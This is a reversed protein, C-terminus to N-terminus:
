ANEGQDGGSFQRQTRSLPVFLFSASMIHMVEGKPYGRIIWEYNGNAPADGGADSFTVQDATYDTIEFETDYDDNAFAIYYGKLNTPFDYTVSDVLTATKASFNVTAEGLSDSGIIAVKANSLEFQKYTFRGAPAPFRRMDQNLGTQTYNWFFDRDGWIFLPDGWYFDHGRFRIPILDNEIRGLDNISTPQFSQDTSKETKVFARTAWKRVDELGCDTACSKWDHMITQTDWNDPTDGTDILPDTLYAPDHKLVYGRSDGRIIQGDFFSFATPVFSDGGSVTTFASEEGLGKNLFLLLGGDNDSSGSNFQCGWWVRKKIDDLTGVIKDKNYLASYTTNLHKTLKRTIFGDTFYFGDTGAFLIGDDIRVLSRSSLLGVTDTFRNAVLAGRGYQDFGGEIRYIAVDTFAVLRGRASSMGVLDEDLDVYFDGPCSDGDGAISQRIRNGLVDSGETVYGYYTTDEVTHILRSVPPPENEVRGGTTYLSNNLVLDSDTTTDTYTSTGNTITDVLYYVSGNKTTRYIEIEINTTDYNLDGSNALTPINTITLETQSIDLRDAATLFLPPGRDEYTVQGVTYEQKYVFAYGYTGLSFAGSWRVKDVDGTTHSVVSAQHVNYKAVLDNLETVQGNISGAPYGGWSDNIPNTASALIPTILQHTDRDPTFVGNHMTNGESTNGVHESYDLRLEWVLEAFYHESYEPQVLSVDAATILAPSGFANHVTSQNNKHSNLAAKLSNALEFLPEYSDTNYVWPYYTENRRKFYKLGTAQGDGEVGNHIDVDGVHIMWKNYLDYYAKWMEVHETPKLDSTTLAADTTNSIPHTADPVSHILPYGSISDLYHQKYAALLGHLLTEAEEQTPSVGMAAPISYTDEDGHYGFWNWWSYTDVVWGASVSNHASTDRAHGGSTQPSFSTCLDVLLDTATALDVPTRTVTVATYTGDAAAYHYTLPAGGIADNVHANYKPYAENLLTLLSTLDTADPSTILNASDVSKHATGANIHTNWGLKFENATAIINAKDFSEFHDIFLLRLNNFYTRMYLPGILGGNENDMYPLGATRLRMTGGSDRYVKVPHFDGDFTIFMHKNWESYSFISADTAGTFAVTSPGALETWSGGTPDYLRTSAQVLQRGIQSFHPLTSVRSNNPARYTVSHFVQSGDRTRPKNNDTLFFNELRAAWTVDNTVINDTIGRSFNEFIVSRPPIDSRM